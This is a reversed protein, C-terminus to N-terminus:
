ADHHPSIKLPSPRGIHFGQGYDVGLERLLDMTEQDEIGEGVTKLGFGHALNVIGLVVHRSAANERLDRVFEIDIKLYDIPLQKLYTFGGFGTGFDDLAVQCGLAHLREVFAQAAAEDRVLTTETIEFVLRTPDADTRGITHAIYDALSPDSITRASVNIQVAQGAAALEAGRDIVWRDIETILGYEEAVALFAGPAILRDADQASRMRLLLECQVVAETHLDIIPQAYLVFRDEALAAQIRDVWALKELDREVVRAAAKRDTIDEFVVVCGESGDDTAFPAATYAVPLERGDRRIFIDDAVRVVEGDRVARVIPCDEIALPSGDTRRHHTVGHMVQGRLEGTVVRASGRRGSQPLDRARRRGPHVAGRWHQRHGCSSLQSREAARARVGQARLHRDCRQRLGRVEGDPDLMVRNRLYVPLSSGDRRQVTYESEWRGDRRIADMIPEPDTAHDSTELEAASRGIAEQATWEYLREAGANWSVVTM